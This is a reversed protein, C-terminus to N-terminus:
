DRPVAEGHHRRYKATWRQWSARRCEICSRSGNGAIYTNEPTFEHGRLCHTKVANRAPGTKGRLTNERRTVAELHAPNVCRRHRCRGGPCSADANHCTHDLERGAPVPGVFTEYAFSHARVTRPWMGFNGYGSSCVAGNWEWCGPTVAVKEMFRFIPDSKAVPSM